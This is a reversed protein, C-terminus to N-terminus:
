WNLDKEYDWEILTQGANEKFIQRDRDTFMMQWNGKQGKQLSRAIEENKEHQWDADPNSRMEAELVQELKRTFGHVGLFKWVHRMKQWPAALLDEYRLVMYRVGYLSRAEEHTEVITKVWRQAASCIKEEGFLSREGNL